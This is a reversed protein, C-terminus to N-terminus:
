PTKNLTVTYIACHCTEPQTIVLPENIGILNLISRVFLESKQKMKDKRCFTLTFRRPRLYKTAM